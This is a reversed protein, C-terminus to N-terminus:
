RRHAQNIYSGIEGGMKEYRNGRGQRHIENAHGSIFITKDIVIGFWCEGSGVSRVMPEFHKPVLIGAECGEETFLLWHKLAKGKLKNWAPIEQLAIVSDRSMKQSLTNVVRKAKSM